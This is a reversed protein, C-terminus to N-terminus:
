KERQTAHYLTTLTFGAILIVGQMAAPIVLAIHLIRFENAADTHCGIPSLFLSHLPTMSKDNHTYDQQENSDTRQPL